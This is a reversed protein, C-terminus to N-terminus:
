LPHALQKSHVERIEPCWVHPTLISQHLGHKSSPTPQRTQQNALSRVCSIVKACDVSLVFGISFNIFCTSLLFWEALQRKSYTVIALVGIRLGCDRQVTARHRPLKLWELIMNYWRVIMDPIVPIWVYQVHVFIANCHWVKPHIRKSRETKIGIFIKINAM